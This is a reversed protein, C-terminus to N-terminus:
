ARTFSQTKEYQQKFRLVGKAIAEAMTDLFAPNKVKLEEYRNSIYATEVLVAPIAARKLVYFRATRIGRNKIALSDDVSDCINKAIESSEIRHETLVMDWLTKDLQRSHLVQATDSLKLASNKYADLARANDDTTNALFYCEFGHMSRSRSANIHISVFLDAGSRNAIKVRQPLSIFVDKSRTMVVGLGNQELIHKVKHALKLTYDKERLGMKKSIAGPDRGGHGADIVVTRIRFKSPVPADEKIKAPAEQGIFPGLESRAFDLPLYVAAERYAIPRGADKVRGDILVWRSEARLVMTGAGKRIVASRAVSDWECQLGYADCLRVLPIHAVGGIEIIDKRMSEELKLYPGQAACGAMVVPVVCVLLLTKYYLKM